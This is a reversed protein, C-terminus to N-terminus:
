VLELRIRSGDKLTKIKGDEYLEHVADDFYPILRGSLSKKVDVQLATNGDSKKLFDIIEKKTERILQYQNTNDTDALNSFKKLLLWKVPYLWWAICLYWWWGICIWWLLSHKKMIFLRGNTKTTIKGRSLLM